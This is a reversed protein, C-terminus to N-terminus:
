ATSSELNQGSGQQKGLYDQGRGTLETIKMFAARFEVPFATAFKLVQEYELKPKIMGIHVLHLMKVHQDPVDDGLHVRLLKRLADIAETGLGSLASERRADENMKVFHEAQALEMATVGRVLLMPKTGPPYFELLDSNTVPVEGTREKFQASEFRKVDFDFSVEPAKAEKKKKTM